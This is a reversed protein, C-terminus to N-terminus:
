VAARVLRACCLDILTVAAIIIIMMTCVERYAYGNIKDYMLFGIGGAGVFGLVTASRVNTEFRLLSNSVVYPMIQPLVSFRVIQLPSAGTASVGEVQGSDIAEIADSMVKGLVGVTHVFLALVGAFPGLGIVAVIILALVYENFGRCVDLFRRVVFVGIWRVIRGVANEEPVIIQMTRQAALLAMPVAVIVALLTGWAAIAITEVLSTLYEQIKSARTEPPFYGGRKRSLSESLKQEVLAEREASSRKSGIARAREQILRFGAAGEPMPTGNSRAEELLQARAAEQDLLEPFREAQQRADERDEPTLPKGFLYQVANDRKTWLEGPRLGLREFSWALAALVLVFLVLRAARRAPSVRPRLSDLLADQASAGHAVSVLTTAKPEGSM